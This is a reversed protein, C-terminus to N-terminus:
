AFLPVGNSIQLSALWVHLGGVKASSMGTKGFVDGSSKKQMM